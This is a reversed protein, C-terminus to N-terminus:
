YTQLCLIMNGLYICKFNQNEMVKATPPIKIFPRNQLSVYVNKFNKSKNSLFPDELDCDEFICIEFICIEFFKM